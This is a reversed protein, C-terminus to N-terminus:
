RIPPRTFMSILRFLEHAEDEGVPHIRRLFRAVAEGEANTLEIM